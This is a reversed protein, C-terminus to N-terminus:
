PMDYPNIKSEPIGVPNKQAERYLTLVFMNAEDFTAFNAIPSPEGVNLYSDNEEDIEEIEVWVKYYRM